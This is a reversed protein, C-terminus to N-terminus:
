VLTDMSEYCYVLKHSVGPGEDWTSAKILAAPTSGFGVNRCLSSLSTLSNRPWCAWKFKRGEQVEQSLWSLVMECDTRSARHPTRMGYPVMAWDRVVAGTLTQTKGILLISVKEDLECCIMEGYSIDGCVCYREEDPDVLEQKGDVDVRIQPLAAEVAKQAQAVKSQKNPKTKRTSMSVAAGGDQSTQTITGPAERKSRRGAATTAAKPTTDLAPTKRTPPAPTSTRGRTQTIVAAPEASAALSRRSPPRSVPPPTSEAKPAVSSRQASLPRTPSIPSSLSSMTSSQAPVNLKLPIKKTTTDTPTSTSFPSPKPALKPKKKKSDTEASPSASANLDDLKRKKSKGAEKKGTSKTGNTIPSSTHRQLNALASSFPSFLNRFSSGLEGLRRAALEAEQAAQAAQERALIEWKLKTAENLKMGRNRVATVEITGTVPDGARVSDEKTRSQDLDDVDLFDTGNVQAEGKARYYNEWGRGRGALERQIMVDSPEWTINKKMKKRLKWMEWETLRTWPRYKGGLKADEPPPTPMKYPGVSDRPARPQRPTKEKPAKPPKPQKLKLTPRVPSPADSEWDSQETSAIPSDPNYPPLVDGPVTVRRKRSKQLLAVAMGTARPPNLTLRQISTGDEIKRGSRSRKVEPSQSPEPTPDRSPPKPLAHLKNIISSLRNYHRDAVDYLRCAEAYASERANLARDLHTSIDTRLAQPDPRSRVPLNPLAGYQKTLDHVANSDTLFTEDLGRILTLSRILDSPLYETYDLFDTVTAQADPDLAPSAMDVMTGM